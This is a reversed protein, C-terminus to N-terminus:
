VRWAAWLAAASGLVAVGLLAIAADLRGELPLFFADLEGIRTAGPVEVPGLPFSKGGVELTAQWRGSQEPVWAITERWTSKSGIQLQQWRRIVRNGLRLTAKDMLDTSGSNHLRLELSGPTFTALASATLRAALQPPTAAERSWVRSRRDYTVVYRRPALNSFIPLNLDGRPAAGEQVNLEFRLEDLSSQLEEVAAGQLTLTEGAFAELWSALAMPDRAEDSIAAEGLFTNWTKRDTPIPPTGLAPSFASRRLTVGEPGTHILLDDVRYLAEELVGRRARLPGVTEPITERWWADIFADGDLNAVRLVTADGLNWLGGDAYLLHVRGDVPSLYLGPKRRYVASYEGRMGPKLERPGRGRANLYPSAFTEPFRPRLGQAWFSMPYNDEVSYDYIGESGPEGETAEVFTVLKWPKQTVWNPFAQYPVARVRTEGIAVRGTMPHNGLVTLSYRWLNTERATWTMRIATRSVGSIPPGFPSSAPWVDSRITLNAYNGAAPDFRYFAFPAEFDTHPPLSLSNFQYSGAVHFGSWYETIQKTSTEYVIPRNPGWHFHTPTVSLYPWTPMLPAALRYPVSPDARVTANFRAYGSSPSVDNVLQSQAWLPVGPSAARVRGRYELLTGDFPQFRQTELDFNPKSDFWWGGRRPQVTFTPHVTAPLTYGAEADPAPAVDFRAQGSVHYLTALTVGLRSASPSFDLVLDVGDDDDFSFLYADSETNGWRWWPQTKRVQVPIGHGRAVVTVRVSVGNREGRWTTSVSGQAAATSIIFFSLATFFLRM